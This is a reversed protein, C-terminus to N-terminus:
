RLSAVIIVILIFACLVVLAIDLTRVSINLSDYFNTVINRPGKKMDKDADPQADPANQQDTKTDIESNEEKAEIEKNEEEM